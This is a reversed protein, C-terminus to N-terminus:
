KLTTKDVNFCRRYVYTPEVKMKLWIEVNIHKSPKRLGDENGVCCVAQLTGLFFIRGLHIILMKFRSM